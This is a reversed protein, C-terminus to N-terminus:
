QKAHHRAVRRFVEGATVVSILAVTGLMSTEFDRAPLINLEVGKTALLGISPGVTYGLGILAEHMGGADVGANGVEMAYYIAATYIAAISVGFVVLGAIATILGAPSPLLGALVVGAFGLVLLLGAVIALTWRGHWGQWRELFAFTAVRALLWAAPLLAGLTTTVGLFSRDGLLDLKRALSPLYPGITSMVLYALPVLLRFTLLLDTYVPPHPAHDGQAHEGPEPGFGALCAVAALHLGGIIFIALAAHHEVLPAAGFTAVVGASSWVVNWRGMFARLGAGRRGGSVFSEVMPWLMGTVLSYLLVTTWIPWSAPSATPSTAWLVTQPIFCLGALLAMLLALVARSSLRPTARALRHLLPQAGLAGAIYAVGLSAGLLFNMAQSFHYGKHTLFYLANSTVISGGLSNIFTFSFAALAPTARAPSAPLTSALTSM